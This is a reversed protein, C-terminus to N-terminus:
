QSSMRRLPARARAVVGATGRRRGPLGRAAAVVCWGEPARLAPPPFLRPQYRCFVSAGGQVARARVHVHMM